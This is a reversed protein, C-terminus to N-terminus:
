NDQGIDATSEDYYQGNHHHKSKLNRLGTQLWGLINDANKAVMNNAMNKAAFAILTKTVFGSKRLLLNKVLVNIGMGLSESVIGHKESSLMNRIAKGALNLPKLDDKIEEVDERIQQELKKVKLKTLVKAQKLQEYNEIKM